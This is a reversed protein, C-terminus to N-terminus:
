PAAHELFLMVRDQTPPLGAIYCLADIGGPIEAVAAEISAPDSLDAKVYQDVDVKPENIDVCIVTAGQEKITKAPEAGIGSAAGTVIIKKNFLSM